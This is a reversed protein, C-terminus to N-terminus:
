KAPPAPPQAGPGGPGRGRGDPGRMGGREPRQMFHEDLTKKQEANLQGYFTKMAAVHQEMGSQRQKMMELMKEAREPANLKAMEAPDPRQAMPGPGGVHSEQFKVWAKEQDPNLKLADHLQQQHQKMREAMREQMPGSGPGRQGQGMMPGGEMCHGPMAMAPSALLGIGSALMLASILTTTKKM